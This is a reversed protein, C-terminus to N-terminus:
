DEVHQMAIVNIWHCEEIADRANMAVDAFAPGGVRRLEQEIRKLDKRVTKIHLAIQAASQEETM